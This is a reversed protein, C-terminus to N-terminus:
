AETSNSNWGTAYMSIEADSSSNTKLIEEYEDKTIVNMQVHCEFPVFDLRIRTKEKILILGNAGARLDYVRNLLSQSLMDYGLQQLKTQDHVWEKPVLNEDQLLKITRSINAWKCENMLMGIIAKYTKYMRGIEKETSVRLLDSSLGIWDEPHKLVKVGNSFKFVALSSFKIMSQVMPEFHAAVIKDVPVDRYEQLLDMNTLTIEARM